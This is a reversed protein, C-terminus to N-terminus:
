CAHRYVVKKRNLIAVQVQLWMEDVCVLTDIPVLSAYLAVPHTSAFVAFERLM